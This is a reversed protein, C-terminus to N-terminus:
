HKVGLKINSGPDTAIKPYETLLEDFHVIPTVIREGSLSGDILMQLCTRDVRDFRWRPYDRNPYSCARSFVIDPINIHAEAGLDLGADHPPPFAGCVVTGGVGIGRIAQQLAQRHGSFDICVDAGRKETAL